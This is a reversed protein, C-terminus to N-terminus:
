RQEAHRRLSRAALMRPGASRGIAYGVFFAAEAFGLAALRRGRRRRGHGSGV